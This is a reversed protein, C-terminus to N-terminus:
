VLLLWFIIALGAGAMSCLINVGDNNLWAQGRLLTTPSGCTHRPYHETPKNCVPCFYSAQLSAGLVSDMLSGTFGAFTICGMALAPSTFGQDQLIFTGIGAAAIAIFMAGGLSALTGLWTVGGSEGKEVPKWNTILRPAQRGLVGLETAWTDANVAALSGAFGIWLIPHFPFFGNLLSFIGPIIGNALVQWADRRSGKSFKENLSSKSRKNIRSLLSSSIFFAVLLVAYGLGGFGFVLMGLLTAAAAGGPSLMQTWWAILSILLALAFGFIIQSTHITM